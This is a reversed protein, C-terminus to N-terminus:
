PCRRIAKRKFEELVSSIQNPMSFFELFKIKQENSFVKELKVERSTYRVLTDGQVTREGERLMNCVKHEGGVILVPVDSANM